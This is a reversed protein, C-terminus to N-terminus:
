QRRKMHNDNEGQASAFPESRAACALVTKEYPQTGFLSFIPGAPRMRLAVRRSQKNQTSPRGGDPPIRCTAHRPNKYVDARSDCRAAEPELYSLRQNLLNQPRSCPAHGLKSCYVRRQSFKRQGHTMDQMCLAVHRTPQWVALDIAPGGFIGTCTLLVEDVAVCWALLLRGFLPWCAISLHATCHPFPSSLM